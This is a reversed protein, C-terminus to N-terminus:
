FGEEDGREPWIGRERRHNRIRAKWRDLRQKFYTVDEGYATEQVHLFAGLCMAGVWLMGMFYYRFEQDEMNQFSSYAITGDANQLVRGALSVPDAHAYPSHMKRVQWVAKVIAPFDAGERIHQSLLRVSSNRVRESELYDTESLMGMAMLLAFLAADAALRSASFCDSVHLRIICLCAKTLQTRVLSCMLYYKTEGPQMNRNRNLFDLILEILEDFFPLESHLLELSQASIQAEDMMMEHLKRALM